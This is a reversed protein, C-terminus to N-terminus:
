NKKIRPYNRTASFLDMGAPSENYTSGDPIICEVYLDMAWDVGNMNLPTMNDDCLTITVNNLTSEKIRNRVLINPTYVVFNNPSVDIPISLLVGGGTPTTGATINDTNLSSTVNIFRTGYIDPCIQGSAVGGAPVSLQTTVGFISTPDVRVIAGSSNSFVFKSTIASFTVTLGINNIASLAIIDSPAYSGLPVTFWATGSNYTINILSAVSYFSTPICASLISIHLEYETPINIPKSLQFSCSSKVGDPNSNAYKSALHITRPTYSM